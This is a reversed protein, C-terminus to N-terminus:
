QITLKKLEEPDAEALVWDPIRQYLRHAKELDQLFASVPVPVGDIKPRYFYDFVPLLKGDGYLTLNIQPCNGLEPALRRQEERLKLVFPKLREAEPISEIGRTRPSAHYIDGIVIFEFWTISWELQEAPRYASLIKAMEQCIPHNKWFAEREYMRKIFFTEIAAQDSPRAALAELDSRGL